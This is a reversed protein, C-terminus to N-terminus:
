GYEKKKKEYTSKVDLSILGVSSSKRNRNGAAGFKVDGTSKRLLMPQPPILAKDLM